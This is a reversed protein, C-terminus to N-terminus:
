QKVFVVFGGAPIVVNLRGQTSPITAGWNGANQGGYIVADSNFVEKWVADPNALLDKEIRARLRWDGYVQRVDAITVLPVNTLLVLTRDRAPEYTVLAWLRQQTQPLRLALWGMQVTARRKKRAHSFIVTL